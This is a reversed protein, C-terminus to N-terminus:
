PADVTTAPTASSTSSQTPEQLQAYHEGLLGQLSEEATQKRPAAFWFIAGLGWTALIMIYEAPWLLQMSSGPTLSAVILGVGVLAGIAPVWSFRVLYPRELNPYKRRMRYFAAVTFIWVLSVNVGGIDLFWVLGGPGIWGLALGVVATFLLAPRPAGTKEDVRSLFSPLLGVRALSFILRSVSSFVAIFTTLIGIVGIVFAAWSIIPFGAVKFAEITGSDLAATEQWPLVYGTAAFIAAYFAGAIMVAIVVIKGIRGAPVNAEEAMVAVISFGTLFGLAPLIFTISQAIPSTDGTVTSDFMPWFNDISGAGFGVAIVVAGIVLMAIFLMLQLRFSLSAGFWNLALMVLMLGVGLALVPLFVTKGGVSYLPISNMGPAVTSILFGTATVYFAVIGTFISILLWGVAFGVGRNFAVYSFVLEGGARPFMSTLESIALAVCSAFVTALIMGILTGGLGFNSFFQSTLYLFSSGIIGAAGVAVLTMPGITRKLQAM